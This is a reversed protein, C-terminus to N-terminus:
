ESVFEADTDGLRRCEELLTDRLSAVRDTNSEDSLDHLEKPDTALDFLQTHREGNVQYEILKDGDEQVMRQTEKYAGIIRDRVTVSPDKIAPMLSKADMDEPIPLGVLERLTPNVDCQYCLTNSRVDEPLGPGSLLLPVRVSHDYLNQKGMLGHRGVALGHDATLVVITNSHQDTERLADLLRGVHHDLHTISAYYDAIHRRIEDPNRPQEALCEDRIDHIGIDFPHSERFSEPLEIERDDYRALYEGPPTRPDHPEMTAVYGFFPSNDTETDALFETIANVFVATSHTGSAHCEGISPGIGVRGDGMPTSHPLKPYEGLEHRDTVPVNWHNDMGGFFISSGEQFSRNFAETGNHWKGTGFTRYGADGFAEGLTPHDNTMGGPGECRFLSRGSHIMSRAPVCIAGSDSGMNHARTFSLGDEVLSDLHPTEVAPDGIANITDYRMDDAVVMLVNPCDTDAAPNTPM